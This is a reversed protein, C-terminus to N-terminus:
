VLKHHSRNSIFNGVDHLLAAIYILLDYRADLRHEQQMAEFLQRALDASQQSHAEDFRYKRGLELASNVIQQKFEEAWAGGHGAMDTLIGDRLDANGVLVNKIGLARAIHAYVLLAPGLTEADPFSM